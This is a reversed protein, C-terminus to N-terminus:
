NRLTTLSHSMADTNWISPLLMDRDLPEQTDCADATCIRPTAQDDRVGLSQHGPPIATPPSSHWHVMAVCTLTAMSASTTPPIISTKPTIRTTPGVRGRWRGHSTRASLNGGVGRSCCVQYSLCAHPARGGGHRTTADAATCKVLGNPSVLVTCGIVHCTSHHDPTNPVNRHHALSSGGYGPTWSGSPQRVRRSTEHCPPALRGSLRRFRRRRGRGIPMQGASVAGSPAGGGRRLLAASVYPGCLEDTTM